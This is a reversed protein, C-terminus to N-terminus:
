SLVSSYLFVPDKSVPYILISTLIMSLKSSHEKSKPMSVNPKHSYSLIFSTTMPSLLYVSVESIFYCISCLCNLLASDCVFCPYIFYNSTLIIDLFTGLLILLWECSCIILLLAFHVIILFIVFVMM